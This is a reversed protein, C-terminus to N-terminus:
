GERSHQEHQEMIVKSVSALIEERNSPKLLYGNLGYSAWQKIVEKNTNGTLAIIPIEKRKSAQRLHKTANLGDLRPMYLDMLVVDYEHGEIKALAVAGDAAEDTEFGGKRLVNVLMDRYLTNDEVVLVGGANVSHAEVSTATPAEFIDEFSEETAFDFYTSDDGKTFAVTESSKMQLEQQESLTLILQEIQQRVPPSLSYLLSTTDGYSIESNELPPNPQIAAARPVVMLSDGILEMKLQSLNELQEEIDRDLREVIGSGFGVFFESEGQAKLAEYVSFVLRLREYMPQFVFYDNFIGKQCCHYAVSAERNNCLLITNHPYNLYKNEIVSEYYDIAKKVSSLCILLVPPKTRMLFGTSKGSLEIARYEDCISNVIQTVGDIDEINEYLLIIKAQRSTIKLDKTAM